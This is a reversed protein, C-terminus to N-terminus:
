WTITAVNGSVSVHYKKMEPDTSELKLIGAIIINDDELIWAPAEVRTNWNDGITSPDGWNGFFFDNDVTRPLAFSKTYDGSRKDIDTLSILQMKLVIATNQDVDL